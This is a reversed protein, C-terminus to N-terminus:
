RLNIHAKKLMLKGEERQNDDRKVGLGKLQKRHVRPCKYYLSQRKSVEFREGALIELKAQIRIEQNGLVKEAM